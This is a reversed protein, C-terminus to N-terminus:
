LTPDNEGEPFPLRRVATRDFPPPDAGGHKMLYGMISLEATTEFREWAPRSQWYRYEDAKIEDFDTYKRVTWGERKTDPMARENHSLSTLIELGIF